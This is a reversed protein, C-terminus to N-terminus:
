SVCLQVTKGKSWDDPKYKKKNVVTKRKSKRTLGFAVDLPFLLSFLPGFM